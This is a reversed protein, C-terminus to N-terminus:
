CLIYLWSDYKTVINQIIIEKAVVSLFKM